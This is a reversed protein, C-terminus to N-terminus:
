KKASTGTPFTPLSLFHSFCFSFNGPSPHVPRAWQSHIFSVLPCPTNLYFSLCISLCVSPCFKPPGAQAIMPLFLSSKRYTRRSERYRAM